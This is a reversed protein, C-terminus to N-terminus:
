VTIDRCMCVATAPCLTEFEATARIAPPAASRDSRAYGLTEFFAPVTVTLLFLRRVGRSRATAEARAVLERGVGRGRCLPLVCLSRLLAVDEYIELGVTGALKDGSVALWFANVLDSGIDATELGCHDLHERVTDLDAPTAVRYAIRKIEGNSSM